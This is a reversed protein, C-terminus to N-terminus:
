GDVSPQAQHKEWLCQNATKSRSNLHGINHLRLATIHGQQEKNGTKMKVVKFLQTGCAM